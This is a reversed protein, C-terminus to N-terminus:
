KTAEGPAPAMLMKNATLQRPCFPMVNPNPIERWPLGKINSPVITTGSPTTGQKGAFVVGCTDSTPLKLITGQFCSSNLCEPNPNKIIEGLHLQGQGALESARAVIVSRQDSEWSAVSNNWLILPTVIAGIPALIILSALFEAQIKTM